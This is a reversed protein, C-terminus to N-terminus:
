ETRNDKNGRWIRNWWRKRPPAEPISETAPLNVHPDAPRGTLSPAQWVVASRSSNEESEDSPLIKAQQLRNSERVAAQEATLLPVTLTMDEPYPMGPRLQFIPHALKEVAFGDKYIACTLNVILSGDRQVDWRVLGVPVWLRWDKHVYRGSSEEFSEQAIGIPIELPTKAFEQGVSGDANLVFVSATSPLSDLHLTFTAEPQTPRVMQLRTTLHDASGEKFNCVWRRVKEPAYGDRMLIVNLFLEGDSTGKWIDPDTASWSKWDKFTGLADRVPSYGVTCAYPTTGVLRGSGGSADLAYIKATGTACDITVTTQASAQTPKQFVVTKQYARNIPVTKWSSVRKKLNEPFVWNGSFVEQEYGPKQLILEPIKVNLFTDNAEFVLPSDADEDVEWSGKRNFGLLGRKKNRVLRLPLTLPTKGILKEEGAKKRLSVDAEEPDSHIVFTFMEGDGRVPTVPDESLPRRLTQCGCLALIVLLSVMRMMSRM